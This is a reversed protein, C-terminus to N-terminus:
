QYITKMISIIQESGMIRQGLFPVLFYIYLIILFVALASKIPLSIIFVNLNPTFRNILGMSLDVSFCAISIPAAIAIILRGLRIFTNTLIAPLNMDWIPLFNNIPWVSYSDFITKIMDTFGGNIFFLVVLIHFFLNGFPTTQTTVMPDYMLAYFAGRQMDIFDGANQAAWFVIGLLIGVMFGIFIEKVMLGIFILFSIKRVIHIQVPLVTMLPLILSMVISNKSFGSLIQKNMFPLTWFASATRACILPITTILQELELSEIM